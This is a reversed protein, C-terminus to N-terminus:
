FGNLTSITKDIEIFFNSKFFRLAFIGEPEALDILPTSTLHIGPTFHDRM